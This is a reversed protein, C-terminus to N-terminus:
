PPSVTVSIPGVETSPVGTGSYAVAWLRYTGEDGTGMTFSKDEGPAMYINSSFPISSSFPAGTASKFIRAYSFNADTPAIIEVDLSDTGGTAAFTTVPGVGGTAEATVVYYAYDSKIDSGTQFWARVRIPSVGTGVVDAQVYPPDPYVNGVIDNWVVTDEDQGEIYNSWQAYLRSGHTVIAWSINFHMIGAASELVANLSVPAAPPADPTPTDSGPATGEESVEDWQFAAAPMSRIGITCRGVSPDFSFATRECVIDLDLESIRVRILREGISNLGYANTTITGIWDPNLRYAELKMRRRAQAHSPCWTLDLTVSQTGNIAISAEDRWPDAEQEEYGNEPSVYKARIENRLDGALPGRRLGQYSYIHDDTFIVTPEYYNPHDLVIAGDGRMRLNAGSPYLIMPLVDRPPQSYDYGGALQFRPETGGGALAVLADAEDAKDKWDEIALEFLERPLRMGDAAWGYHLVILAANMSFLWTAPDDASQAPDRPDWIKSSRMLVRIAPIGNPFVQTFAKDELSGFRGLINAIGRLRDDATWEGPFVSLLDPQTTQDDRGLQAVLKARRWGELFFPAENVLGSGNLTVQKDSLWYQEIGDIEHSALLILSFLQGDTGPKNLNPANRVELFAFVGGVFVRGFYRRRPAVDQRVNQKQIAPTLSPASPTLLSSIGYETGAVVAAGIATNIAVATTIGVSEVLAGSGIVLDTILAGIAVLTEPM